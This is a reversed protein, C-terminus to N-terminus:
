APPISMREHRTREVKSPLTQAKELRRQMTRHRRALLLTMSSRPPLTAKRNEAVRTSLTCSSFVPSSVWRQAKVGRHDSFWTSLCAQKLQRLIPQRSPHFSFFAQFPVCIPYSIASTNDDSSSMFRSCKYQPEMTRSTTFPSLPVM